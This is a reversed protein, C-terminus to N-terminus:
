NGEKTLSLKVDTSQGAIVDFEKKDYGLTKSGAEAWYEGAELVQTFKGDKDTTLTAVALNDAPKKNGDSDKGIPARALVKKLRVRQNPVAKGDSDVVLGNVTGTALLADARWVLLTGLVMSLVLLTKM